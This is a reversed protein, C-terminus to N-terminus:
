VVKGLSCRRRYRYGSWLKVSSEAADSDLEPATGGDTYLLTKGSGGYAVLQAAIKWICHEMSM